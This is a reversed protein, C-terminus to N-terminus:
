SIMLIDRDSPVCPSYLQNDDAYNHHLLSQAKIVKGVDATYLTFLLQRLVPVRCFCQSREIRSSLISGNCHSEHFELPRPCGNVYSLLDVTDFAASLDLLSLLVLRGSIMADILDSFM